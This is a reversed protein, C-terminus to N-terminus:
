LEEERKAMMERMADLQRRLAALTKDIEHMKKTLESENM